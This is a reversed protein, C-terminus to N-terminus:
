WEHVEPFEWALINYLDPAIYRLKQMRGHEKYASGAWNSYRAREYGDFRAARDYYSIYPLDNSVIYAWIEKGSWNLVPKCKYPTTGSKTKHFTGYKRLYSRIKSEERRLGMISCDISFQKNALEFGRILNMTVEAKEVVNIGGADRYIQMITRPTKVRHFNIRCKATYEVYMKIAETIDGGEGRDINIVLINPDVRLAIDMCVLSDKGFSFSVAPRSCTDVACQIADIAEALHAQYSGLTAIHAYKRRTKEDM